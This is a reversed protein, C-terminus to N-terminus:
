FCTMWGALRFCRGLSIDATQHATTQPNILVIERVVGYWLLRTFAPGPRDYNQLRIRRWGQQIFHQRLGQLRIHPPLEYTVHLRATGRGSIRINTAGPVILDRGENTWAVLLGAGCLTTILCLGTLTLLLTVRRM